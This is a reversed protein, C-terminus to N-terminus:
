NGTARVENVHVAGSGPVRLWLVYYRFRKGHTDVSLPTSRKVTEWGSLFRFPGAAANGARVRVPFGPTDTHVTLGSVATPRRAQLVLGVGPKTFAAYSETTWATASNGDVALPAEFGHEDDNDGFPDYSGAGTLRVAHSPSPSVHLAEKISDRKLVLIAVAAALAALALVFAPAAWRPSPAVARGPVELTDEDPAGGDLEATCRELEAAVEGMSAFRREPEKELCRDVLRALRQPVDPRRTRVPAPPENVHKLAVSVLSTGSFLPDGTLLEYLVAGLSYVDSAPGAHEGRAQEPSIYDSTGLMTGTLTLGAEGDLSRAIGFDTVHVRGDADLLVNQPKVDRHVVGHQHAFALARAVELGLATVRGPPLPGDEVLSKLTRGEVYEFVIYPCGDEEGRDIVTVINPHNLQAAARAERRFREVFDGDTALREHLVKLAVRRDLVRDHARYVASMGGRGVLEELEYRGAVLEGAVM